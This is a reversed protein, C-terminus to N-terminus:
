PSPRASSAHTGRGFDFPINLSLWIRNRELSGDQDKGTTTPNPNNGDRTAWSAKLNVGYPAFWTLSLGYGKLDYDPSARYNTVRGWDYFPSLTLSPQFTWRLEVRALQGDSGSGENVPYARVGNAGGLYFRESTDLDKGAYQGSLAGSLALNPTLVQQRSADYRLKGFRGALAANEGADRRGQDVRGGVWSLSFNNSGGGALNDYLNGTLGVTWERVAYDSQTTNNAYNRFRKDEYSLNLYLNKLRSRLLPYSLDFGESASDGHSNLSAFEPAIVRYDFTSANVGGRWGDAGLPVSYALRYYDNGQAHLVDARLLDGLRLPSNVNVALTERQAGTARAGENDAGFSGTVLPEDRLSLALGTEGEAGGAELAASVGVGPLDDALLLARDLAEANLPEGKKQQADFYGLVTSLKLRLPEAGELRVGSFVAEVVQITVVGDTVDQAPLYARVIWGAQRYANAVAQAAEQLEVFGIKRGVWAQVVPRLQEDGLLTNGAFRFAKVSITVGDPLKLPAPEAPKLPAARGPLSPRLEREIQQQLAGADPVVQALAVGAGFVNTVCLAINIIRRV